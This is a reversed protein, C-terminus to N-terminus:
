NIKSRGVFEDMSTHVGFYETLAYMVKYPLFSKLFILPYLIRPILVQIENCQVAKVIRKVVYEPDQIPLLFNMKSKVGEFMGTNIYYPCICTVHVDKKLKFMENTLAESLGVAGFKSACYDVLGNVGGHGAISAITVIHGKNLKLMDPLFSKITWFHATTNVDMCLSMLKDPCDLITKGTVIGANNILISVVAKNDNFHSKIAKQTQDVVKYIAERDALNISYALAPVGMSEIKKATKKNEAENLDWCVIMRPKLEAFKYAMGRGIGSAAGTILIIDNELSKRAPLIM